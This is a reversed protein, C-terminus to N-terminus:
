NRYVYQNFEKDASLLKKQKIYLYKDSLLAGIQGMMNLTGYIILQSIKCPRYLGSLIVINRRITHKDFVFIYM